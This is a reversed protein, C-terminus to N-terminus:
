SASSAGTAIRNHLGVMADLAERLELLFAGPVEGNSSSADHLSTEIALGREILPGSLVLSLGGLVHHLWEGLEHGSSPIPMADLRGLAARTEEICSLLVRAVTADTGFRKQLCTLDLKAPAGQGTGPLPLWRRVMRELDEAMVPKTLVDNMGADRCMVWQEPRVDATVAVVPINCNASGVTSRLDRTMAYGDMTPMHCDTLVIDYPCDALHDLAEVGNEATDSVIGLAALMLVMVERNTRHDDVVLARRREKYHIPCGSSKVPVSGVLRPPSVGRPQLRHQVIWEVASFRLPNASLRVRDGDVVFGEPMVEDTIEFAGKLGSQRDSFVVDSHLNTGGAEVVDVGLAVLCDAMARRIDAHGVDLCATLPVPRDSRVEELTPLVMTASAVTGVGPASELSMHGGMLEALRRCISLGLGTGGFQHAVSASAQVFPRFIDKQAQEDIGVGTDRVSLKLTQAGVHMTQVELAISISGEHTFKIANSLLNLMIQRLRGEDGMVCGSVDRAVRARLLLGKEHAAAAMVAVASDVLLRLDVKDADLHMEGSEVKSYDLIDNLIHLLAGASESVTGLLHRQQRDLDTRSLVSIMGIVGNMPTRIEHSMTALFESKARTADEAVDRAQALAVAQQHEHTVDSWFGSWYTSGDLSRHPKAQSKVYHVTGGVTARITLRLPSLTRASEDLERLLIVRDDEHITHLVPSEDALIDHATMGIVPEPDGGLYTFRRRGDAHRVLKFVVAPLNDVVDDLHEELMRRRRVERRLNIYAYGLIVLIVLGALLFPLLKRVIERWPTSYHYDAAFWANKMALRERPTLRNLSRNILPVLPELGKRVGIALGESDGTPATIKLVGTYHTSILYDATALNSVLADGEGAALRRMGEETSAVILIRADGLKTLIAADAARDPNALVTKGHLDDLSTVASTGERVVLMIPFSIYSISTAMYPSAHGEPNMAELLDIDGQKVRELTESWNHTATVEVRIGLDRAVVNFYDTSLGEVKGDPSVVNFPVFSPDIAVRLPPLSVLWAHEAPTLHLTDPASPQAPLPVVPPTLAIGLQGWAFGFTSHAEASGPPAVREWASRAFTGPHTGSPIGGPNTASAAENALVMSAALAAAYVLYRSFFMM